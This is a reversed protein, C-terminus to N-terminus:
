LLGISNEVENFVKKLEHALSLYFSEVVRQSIGYLLCGVCGSLMAESVIHLGTLLGGFLLLGERRGM